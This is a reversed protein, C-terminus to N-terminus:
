ELSDLEPNDYVNVGGETLNRLGELNTLADNRYISVFASDLNVFADV